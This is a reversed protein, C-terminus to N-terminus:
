NLRINSIVDYGLFGKKIELTVFKFNDIKAQQWVQFVLQKSAGNYNIELAPQSPDTGISHKHLIKFSKTETNKDALYYNLAMFCFSAMIGFSVLSQGLPYLINSKKYTNLYKKKIIFFAVITAICIVLIIIWVPVITLRFLSTGLIGLALGVFFTITYFSKNELISNM